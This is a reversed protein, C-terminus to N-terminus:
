QVTLHEIRYDGFIITVKDGSKVYNGPNGFLMFYGKGAIPKNTTQRMPGVKTAPVSFVAGTKEHLLYPETQRSFLVEAKDPDIAKYRFDLMYGEASLRLSIIEIGLDEFIRKTGEGEGAQGNKGLERKGNPMPTSQCGLLFCLVIIAVLLKM